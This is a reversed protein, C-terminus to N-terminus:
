SILKTGVEKRIDGPGFEAEYPIEFYEVESTINLIQYGDRISDM